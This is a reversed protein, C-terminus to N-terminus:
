RTGALPQLRDAVKILIKYVDPDFTAPRADCLSWVEEESRAPGLYRWRDVVHAVPGERLL